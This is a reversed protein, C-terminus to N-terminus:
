SVGGTDPASTVVSYGEPIQNQSASILGIISTHTISVDDALIPDGIATRFRYIDPAYRKCAYVSFGALAIAGWGWLPIGLVDRKLM